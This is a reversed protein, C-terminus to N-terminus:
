TVTKPTVVIVLRLVKPNSMVIKTSTQRTIVTDWTEVVLMTGTIIATTLTLDMTVEWVETVEQDLLTREMVEELIDVLIVVLALVQTDVLAQTDALVQIDALVQTDALVLTLQAMIHLDIHQIVTLVLCHDWIM